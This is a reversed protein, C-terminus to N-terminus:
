TPPPFLHPFYVRYLTVLVCQNVPSQDVWVLTSLITGYAAHCQPLLLLTKFSVRPSDPRVWNCKLRGDIHLETPPSRFNKARKTPSSRLLQSSHSNHIFLYVMAEPFPTETELTARNTSCPFPEEIASM